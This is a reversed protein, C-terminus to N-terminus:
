KLFGGWNFITGYRPNKRRKEEKIKAALERNLQSIRKRKGDPGYISIGHKRYIDYFNGEADHGGAAGATTAGQAINGPAARAPAEADPPSALAGPSETSAGAMTRESEGPAPPRLSLDPPVSLPQVTRVKTEDPASKGIGLTDQFTTEACGALLLLCPLAAIALKSRHATM